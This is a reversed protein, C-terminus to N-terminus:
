ACGSEVYVFLLVMNREGSVYRVQKQLVEVSCNKFLTADVMM